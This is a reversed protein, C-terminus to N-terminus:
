QFSATFRRITNIILSIAFFALPRQVNATYHNKPLDANHFLCLLCFINACIQTSFKRIIGSIQFMFQCMGQHAHKQRSNLGSCIVPLSTFSDYFAFIIFYIVRFNRTSCVEFLKDFENKYRKKCYLDM